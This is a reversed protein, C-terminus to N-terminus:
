RPLEAVALSEGANAASLDQGTDFWSGQDDTLNFDIPVPGAGVPAATSPLAAITATAALLSISALLATRVRRPAITLHRRPPSDYTTMPMGARSRDPEPAGSPPQLAASWRSM